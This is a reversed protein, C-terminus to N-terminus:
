ELEVKIDPQIPGARHTKPNSQVPGLSEVDSLCQTIQLAIAFRTIVFQCYLLESSQIDDM